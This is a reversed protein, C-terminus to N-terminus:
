LCYSMFVIIRVLRVVAHPVAVGEPGGQEVHLVISIVSSRSNSRSSNSRSSSSSSSSITVIIIMIMIVIMSSSIIVVSSVISISIITVLLYSVTGIVCM